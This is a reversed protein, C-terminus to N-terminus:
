GVFPTVNYYRKAKDDGGNGRKPKRGSWTPLDTLSVWEIAQQTLAHLSMSPLWSRAERDIGPGVIEEEMKYATALSKAVADHIALLM